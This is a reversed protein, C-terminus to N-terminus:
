FGFFLIHLVSKLEKREGERGKCKLISFFFIEFDIVLIRQRPLALIFHTLLDLSKEFYESTLLNM